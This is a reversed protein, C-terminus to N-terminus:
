VCVCMCLTHAHPCWLKEEEGGEKGGEKGEGGKGKSM